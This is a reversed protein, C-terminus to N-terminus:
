WPFMVLALIMRIRLIVVIDAVVPVRGFVVNQRLVRQHVLQRQHRGYVPQQGSPLRMGASPAETYKWSTLGSASGSACASGRQWFGRWVMM